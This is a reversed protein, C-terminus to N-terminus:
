LGYRAYMAREELVDLLGTAVEAGARAGLPSRFWRRKPTFDRIRVNDGFRERLVTGMDGLEDILGLELAGRGSWVAASFVREPDNKLRGGRREQVHELFDARIDKLVAQLVAVDEERVPSFPDMMGKHKGEAYVRREVGFRELLQPFGFGANIVGISGVVSSSLAFIEDAACALWYGGSAAIDEVFALVPLDHKNALHRVERSILGCQVPSGGPSNIALAVAKAGRASFARRLVPFIGTATVAESGVPRTRMGVVGALRVLPITPTRRRWFSLSIPM